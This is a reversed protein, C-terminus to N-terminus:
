LRRWRHGRPRLLEAAAKPGWSGAVYEHIPAADSSWGEFFPSLLGWAEEIEDNRTFLTSDGKMADLLLREYADSSAIGFSRDYTFDMEVPKVRMRPGPPKSNIRFSMGETPQVQITLANSMIEEVQRGKFLADPAKKFIVTIDTIRKPLRKGARIYIPVGQWRWNDIELTMAVFTDTKSNPSVGSEERYGPVEAGDIFGKVYQARVSAEIAEEKSYRRISRLVKVKEDRIANADSLSNPPEICLLSLMQLVHNQIIDRTIGNQDFYGARNGVGINECVSIEISEVYNKNWLPEFIGNAFRFVLINQVTEKGLYHDIRFIQEESCEKMLEDNLARATGLDVGFPKEVVLSTARVSSKPDEILGAKKLNKAISGFFEPSMALYYLYSCTEQGALNEMRKRLAAFDEEKSGDLPQYFIKSAFSKWAEENLPRRSFKKCAEYLKTRFEEDSLKSRACGVVVFTDPLYNDQSLNYLAPVLKRATLDGSAGFIVLVTSPPKLIRNEGEAFPNEM